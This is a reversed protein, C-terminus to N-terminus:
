FFWSIIIYLPGSYNLFNLGFFEDLWIFWNWSFKEQGFEMKQLKLFPWFDIKPSPFFNFCDFICNWSFFKKPNIYIKKRHVIRCILSPLILFFRISHTSLHLTSHNCRKSMSNTICVSPPLKKAKQLWKRGWLWMMWEQLTPLFGPFVNFNLSTM